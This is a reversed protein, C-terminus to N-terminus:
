VIEWEMFIRFDVRFWDSKAMRRAPLNRAPPWRLTTTEGGEMPEVTPRSAAPAQPLARLRVRAKRLKFFSSIMGVYEWMTPVVKASPDIWPPGQMDNTFPTQNSWEM